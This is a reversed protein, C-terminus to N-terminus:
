RSRTTGVSTLPCGTWWSSGVSPLRSASSRPSRVSRAKDRRRVRRRALKQEVGAPGGLDLDKKRVAGGAERALHPLEGPVVEGRDLVPSVLESCEALGDQAGQRSWIRQAETNLYAAYVAQSLSLGFASRTMRLMSDFLQPWQHWYYQAWARQEARGVVDPNFAYLTWSDLRRLLRALRSGSQTRTM